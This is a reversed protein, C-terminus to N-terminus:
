SGVSDLAFALAARAGYAQPSPAPARWRCALCRFDFEGAAPAHSADGLTSKLAIKPSADRLELLIGPRCGFGNGAYLLWAEAARGRIPIGM